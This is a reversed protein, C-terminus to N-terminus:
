TIFDHYFNSLFVHSIIDHTQVRLRPRSVLPGTRVGQTNASLPYPDPSDSAVRRVFEFADEGRYGGEELYARGVESSSAAIWGLKDCHQERCQVATYLSGHASFGLKIRDILDRTLANM